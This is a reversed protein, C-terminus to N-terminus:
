ILKNPDIWIRLWSSLEAISSFGLAAKFKKIRYKITEYSLYLSKGIDDITKSLILGRLIKLDTGDCETLLKELSMCKTRPATIEILKEASLEHQESFVIGEPNFKKTTERESLYNKMIIHMYAVHDSKKIFNHITAIEKGANVYNLSVSSLSPSCLSSLITDSFSLILIKENWDKDIENLVLMLCFASFDNTCLIADIRENCSLLNSLVPYITKDSFFILPEHYIFQKYTEIRLKDHYGNHNANFLAIRKCGKEKLHSVALKMDGHFDSMVSSFNSTATNADHNSFLIKHIDFESYRDFFFKREEERTPFFIISSEETSYEKLYAKLEEPSYISFYKIRRKAFERTMGTHKEISYISYSSKSDYCLFIPM